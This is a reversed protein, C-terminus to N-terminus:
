ACIWFADHKFSIGRSPDDLHASNLGMDLLTADAAVGDEDLVNGIERYDKNHLRVTVGTKTELREQAIKLMARDWDFGYIVGGPAILDSFRLSHGALGITGDVVVSGPKLNFHRLIADVMVPDHFPEQM